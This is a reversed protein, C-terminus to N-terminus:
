RLATKATVIQNVLVDDICALKTLFSENTTIGVFLMKENVRADTLLAVETFFCENLSRIENSVLSDM